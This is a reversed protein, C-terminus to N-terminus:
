TTSSLDRLLLLLSCYIWCRLLIFTVSLAALHVDNHACCPTTKKFVKYLSCVIQPSLSRKNKMVTAGTGSRKRKM